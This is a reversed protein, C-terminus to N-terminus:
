ESHSITLWVREQTLTVTATASIAPLLPTRHLRHSMSYAAGSNPESDLHPNQEVATVGVGASTAARFRVYVQQGELTVDVSSTDFAPNPAADDQVRVVLAYSITTFSTSNVAGAGAANLRIEGTSSDITFYNDFDGGTISYTLALDDTDTADISAVVSTTNGSGYSVTSGTTSNVVPEANYNIVITQSTSGFVGDNYSVTFSDSGALQLNTGTQEYTYTGTSPGIGDGTLSVQGPSGTISFTGSSPAIDPDTASITGSFPNLGQTEVILDGSFSAPDDIQNVTVTIRQTADFGADDTFLVDFSDAGAFNLNPTYTWTGSSDITASGNAPPTAADIDFTSSSTGDADTATLTGSIATDEDGNGSTDGSFSTPDDIQNVTVTINQTADFGADDTFLVDFSDSGAFDPDPSYTWLGSSDIFAGGNAPPAM